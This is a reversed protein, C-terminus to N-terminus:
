RWVVGPASPIPAAPRSAIQPTFNNMQNHSFEQPSVWAVNPQPGRGQGALRAAESQCLQAEMRNGLAGQVRALNRFVVADPREAAVQILMYEAERLYGTEALLVGLEHAAMYNENHALLAAQQFTVAERTALPHQESETAALLSNLKGLSYLAMSGAPEGAVAVALKIQAYRHYREMMKSPLTVALNLERALPTRHAACIVELKMEAELQSGRPSFDQAEELARLGAALSETRLRTGDRVDKAQSILRLVGILEERAAYAAGRQSLSYAASIKLRCKQDLQEDTLTGTAAGLSESAILELLHQEETSLGEFKPLEIAHDSDEVLTPEETPTNEALPPAVPEPMPIDLEPGVPPPEDAVQETIPEAEVAPANEQSVSLKDPSEVIPVLLEASEAEDVCPLRVLHNDDSTGWYKAVQRTPAELVPDSLEVQSTEVDPLEEADPALIWSDDVDTTSCWERYIREMEAPDNQTCGVVCVACMVLCTSHSFLGRCFARLRLM